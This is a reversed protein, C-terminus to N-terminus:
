GLSPYIVRGPLRLGSGSGPAPVWVQPRPGLGLPPSGSGLVHVQYGSAPVWSGSAPGLGPPLFRSAPPPFGPGPPLLKSAPLQLLRKMSYKEGITQGKNEPKM